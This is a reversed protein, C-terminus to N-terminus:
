VNLPAPKIPRDLKVRFLLQLRTKLLDIVKVLGLLRGGKFFERQTGAVKLDPSLVATTTPYQDVVFVIAETDKDGVGIKGERREERKRGARECSM